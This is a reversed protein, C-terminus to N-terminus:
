SFFNSLTDVDGDIREILEGPTHTKHFAMDLSLCHVVLDTRLQNTATWAVNESLYTAAVSVGQNALAVGVFLFAAGILSPTASGTVTADIFYRLIQPNFLQ